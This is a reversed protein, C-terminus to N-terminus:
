VVITTCVNRARPLDKQPALEVELHIEEGRVWPCYEDHQDLDGSLARRSACGGQCPCDQASLPVQRALQFEPTGLIGEYNMDVLYITKGELTDLRPALTVREALKETVAPNLVTILEDQSAVSKRVSFIAAIGTLVLIAVALLCSSLLPKRIM